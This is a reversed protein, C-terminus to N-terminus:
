LPTKSPTHNTHEIKNLLKDVVTFIYMFHRHAENRFSVTTTKPSKTCGWKKTLEYSMDLLFRIKDDEVSGDLAVTIWHAKNMHWGSFIGPEMRFSGILRPDYKLNVISIEGDGILGLKERPINMLVAFWKKKGGHRFVQFNPYRIFLYEGATHYTDTLYIELEHRNM